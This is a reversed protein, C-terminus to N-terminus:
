YHHRNYEFLIVSKPIKDFKLYIEIEKIGPRNEMTLMVEEQWRWAM